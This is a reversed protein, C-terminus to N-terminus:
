PKVIHSVFEESVDGCHPVNWFVFINMNKVETHFIRCTNSSTNVGNTRINAYRYQMAL